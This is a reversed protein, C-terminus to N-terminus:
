AMVRRAKLMRYGALMAFLLGGGLFSQPLPTGGNVVSAPVTVPGEANGFPSGNIGSHDVSAYFGTPTDTGLLSSTITLVATTAGLFPVPPGAYGFSLNEVSPNDHSLVADLANLDSADNLSNGTLQQTLTFQSTTLGGTLTWSVLQPFDYIVFGDNSQVNAASDLTVTYTYVGTVVNQSLDHLSITDAKALRAGSLFMGVALAALGFKLAKRSM